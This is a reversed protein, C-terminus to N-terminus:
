KDCILQLIEICTWNTKQHRRNKKTKHNKDHTNQLIDNEQWKQQECQGWTSWTTRGSWAARLARQSWWSWAASALSPRWPWPATAPSWRSTAVTLGRWPWTLAVNSQVSGSIWSIDLNYIHCFYPSVCYPSSFSQCLDFHDFSIVTVCQLRQHIEHSIEHFM